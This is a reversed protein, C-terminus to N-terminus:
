EGTADIKRMFERVGDYADWRCEERMWAPLANLLALLKVTHRRCMGCPGEEYLHQLLPVAESDPHAEAFHTLQLGLFHLDDPTQQRFVVNAVRDYDGEQYNKVLLEVGEGAREASALLELALARVEPHAVHRLVRVARRNVPFDAERAIRIFRKPDLPFARWEFLRLLKKLREADTEALLDDALRRVMEEDATEMWRTPGMSAPGPAEVRQRVEEYSMPPPIRERRREAEQEVRQRRVRAVYAALAADDNCAAELAEYGTHKEVDELLGHEQWLEEEPLPHRMLLGAVFRYGALGDLAVLDEAGTMDRKTISQEFAMQMAQRMAPDTNQALRRAIGFLQDLSVEDVATLLSYRIHPAYWEPEGTAVLVDYMYQARHGELWDYVWNHICTDLLIDRFSRADHGELFLVARGLGRRLLRELEERETVAGAM